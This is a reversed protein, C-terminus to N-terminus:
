RLIKNANLKLLVNIKCVIFFFWFVHCIKFLKASTSHDRKLPWFSVFKAALMVPKILDDYEKDIDVQREM